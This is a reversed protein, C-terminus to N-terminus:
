TSRLLLLLVMFLLVFAAPDMAGKREPCGVGLGILSRTAM